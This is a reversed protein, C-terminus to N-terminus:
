GPPVRAAGGADRLRRACGADPNSCAAHPAARGGLLRRPSGSASGSRGAARSRGKRRAGPASSVGEVGEARGFEADIAEKIAELDADKNQVEFHFVLQATSQEAMPSRRITEHDRGPPRHLRAQVPARFVSPGSRRLSCFDRRDAGRTRFACRLLARRVRPNTPRPTAVRLQATGVMCIGGGAPDTHQRFRRLLAGVEAGLVGSFLHIEDVVLYRPAGHQFLEEDKGRLLLYELMTYNTLLINPPQERM